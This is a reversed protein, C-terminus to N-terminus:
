TPSVVPPVPPGIALTQVVCAHALYRGVLLLVAVTTEPGLAAVADGVEDPAPAGRLAAVALRQVVREEDSLLVAHAPEGALAEVIWDRSFGLNAALQEHQNREYANGLSSSVTLAVLESLRAPLAAKLAETFQNFALLADPQHAAVQFFEGLYGLRDVRPALAEHLSSPLADFVLRPVHRDAPWPDAMSSTM